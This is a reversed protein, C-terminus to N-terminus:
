ISCEFLGNYKDFRKNIFTLADQASLTLIEEFDSNWPFKMLRDSKNLYGVKYAEEPTLPDCIGLEEPIYIANNYHLEALSYKHQIALSHLKSLSQGYLQGGQYCYDPHWKVSFKIPPPFIENVEICMITPRFQKLLQELVFYDYSDIDLSLLGFDKPITNSKLLGIVNDPTVKCRSINVGSFGKYANAMQAFESSSYEIALGAWSSKFLSYTNSYNVGDGAAIDVAWTKIGDIKNIYDQIIQQENFLSYSYDKIFPKLLKKPHEIGVAKLCKKILTKNLNILRNFRHNM